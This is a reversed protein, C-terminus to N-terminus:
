DQGHVRSQAHHAQDTHAVPEEPLCAVVFLAPRCTGCAAGRERSLAGALSGATEGSRAHGHTPHPKHGGLPRATPTAARHAAADVHSDMIHLHGLPQRDHALGLAQQVFTGKCRPQHHGDVLEFVHGCRNAFLYSAVARRAAVRMACNTHHTHKINHPTHRTAHPTHRTTYERTERM